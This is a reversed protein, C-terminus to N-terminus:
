NNRLLSIHSLSPIAGGNDVNASSPPSSVAERGTRKVEPFYGGTDRPYLAKLIIYM